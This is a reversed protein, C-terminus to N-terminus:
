VAQNGGLRSEAKQKWNVFGIIHHAALKKDLSQPAPKAGAKSETALVYNHKTKNGVLPVLVIKLSTAM